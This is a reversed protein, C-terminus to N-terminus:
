RELETHESMWHQSMLHQRKTMFTCGAKCGFYTGLMFNTTPQVHTQHRVFHLGLFKNDKPVQDRFEESCLHYKDKIIKRISTYASAKLKLNTQPPIFLEEMVIKFNNIQAPPCQQQIVTFLQTIDTQLNEQSYGESCQQLKRIFCDTLQMLSQLM